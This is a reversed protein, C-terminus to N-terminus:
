RWAYVMYSHRADSHIMAPLKTMTQVVTRFGQQELLVLIDSLPRTFVGPEYHYELQIRQIQRLKETQILDDLVAFEGGEIDLKLLDVPGNVFESLRKVEVEFAKARGLPTTGASSDTEAKRYFAATGDQEGLAYPHAEVSDGWHNATINKQLVVLAAPNPEFCLVQAHPAMFKIYLLSVGINAGADIIRLPEGTKEIYYSHRFFIEIFLWGFIDVSPFYFTYRGVRIPHLRDAHKGSLKAVAYGFIFRLTEGFSLFERLSAYYGIFRGLM